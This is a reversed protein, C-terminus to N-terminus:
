VTYFCFLHHFCFLKKHKFVPQDLVKARKYLAELYIHSRDLLLESTNVPLDHILNQLFHCLILERNRSHICLNILLHNIVFHLPTPFTNGLPKCSFVPHFRFCSFHKICCVLDDPLNGSIGCSDTLHAILAWIPPLFIFLQRVYKSLAPIDVLCVPQWRDYEPDLLREMEFSFQASLCVANVTTYILFFCIGHCDSRSHAGVFLFGSSATDDVPWFLLFLHPQQHDPPQFLLPLQELTIYM